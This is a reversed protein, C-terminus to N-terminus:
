LFIWEKSGKGCEVTKVVDTYMLVEDCLLVNWLKSIVIYIVVIVYAQVPNESYKMFM